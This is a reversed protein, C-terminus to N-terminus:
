RDLSFGVYVMTGGDDGEHAEISEATLENTVSLDSEQLTDFVTPLGESGVHVSLDYMTERGVNVRAEHPLATRLDTGVRELVGPKVPRAAVDGDEDISVEVTTGDIDVTERSM